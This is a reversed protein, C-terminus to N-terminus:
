EEKKKLNMEFSQGNQTFTGKTNNGDALTGKYAISLDNHKIILETKKFEVSSLPLGYANQDPSDMKGKYGEESTEIHFVVRLEIGQVALNREM